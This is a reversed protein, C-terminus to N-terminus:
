SFSLALTQKVTDLTQQFDNAWKVLGRYYEEIQRAAQLSASSELAPQRTQGFRRVSAEMQELYIEAEKRLAPLVELAGQRVTALLKQRADGTLLSKTIWNAFLPSVLGGELWSNLVMGAGVALKASSDKITGVGIASKAQPEFILV